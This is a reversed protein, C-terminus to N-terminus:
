GYHDSSSKSPLPCLMGQDYSVSLVMTSPTISGPEGKGGARRPTVQPVAVHKQAVVM